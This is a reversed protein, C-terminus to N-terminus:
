INAAFLLAPPPQPRLVPNLNRAGIMDVRTIMYALVKVYSAGLQSM